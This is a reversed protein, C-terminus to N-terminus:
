FCFKNKVKTYHQTCTDLARKLDSESLLIGSLSATADAALYLQRQGTRSNLVVGEGRQVLIWLGISYPPSLPQHSLMDIKTLVHIKLCDARSNLAMFESGQTFTIHLASHITGMAGSLPPSCPQHLLM